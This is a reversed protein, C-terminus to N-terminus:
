ALVPITSRILDRGSGGKDLKIKQESFTDGDSMGSGSNYFRELYLMFLRLLTTLIYTVV